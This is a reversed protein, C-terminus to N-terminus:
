IATVRESGELMKKFCIKLHKKKKKKTERGKEGREGERREGERNSLLIGCVLLLMTVFLIFKKM